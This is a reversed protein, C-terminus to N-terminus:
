KPWDNQANLEIRNEYFLQQAVVFVLIYTKQRRKYFDTYLTNVSIKANRTLDDVIWWKVDDTDNWTM